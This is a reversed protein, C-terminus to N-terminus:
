NQMPYKVFGQVLKEIARAEPSMNQTVRNPSQVRSNREVKHIVTSTGNSFTVLYGSESGDTTSTGSRVNIKGQNSSKIWGELQTLQIRTLARESVSDNHPPCCSREGHSISGDSYITLSSGFIQNGNSYQILATPAAYASTTGLLLGLLLLNKM